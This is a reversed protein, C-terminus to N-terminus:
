HEWDQDQDRQADVSDAATRSLTSKMRSKSSTTAHSPAHSHGSYLIFVLIHWREWQNLTNNPQSCSPFQTPNTWHTTQNPAVQSIRLTRRMNSATATAGNM